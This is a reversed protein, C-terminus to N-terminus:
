PLLDFPIKSQEIKEASNIAFILNEAYKHREAAKILAEGPIVPQRDLWYRLASLAAGKKGAFKRFEGLALRPYGDIKLSSDAIVLTQEDIRHKIKEYGDHSVIFVVDPIEIGTYHIPERSLIVEAVSFGTGVTIPYEGKKTAYLGASVAATALLDGSLQIGEGASGAIVIELRNPLPSTFTPTIVNLNNLLSETHHHPTKVPPRDNRLITEPYDALAKLDKVKRVGHSPCMDVVEVLSFGRTAIASQLTEAINGGVFVRASFAAGATHTLTCLDYPPIGRADPMREAKFEVSSLGSIQGGTMGYVMNNEVILTLDVNQRAAELIHQLGITAGGDGQIVIVKKDPNDLGLSVGLALAPARGHLGHITHCGVLGDVLGCCGIDSVLIIDLPNIELHQFARALDNTVVQHGCGPCFPSPKGILISESM